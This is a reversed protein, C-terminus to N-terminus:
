KGPHLVVDIRDVPDHALLDHADAHHAREDAFGVFGLTEGVGVGDEGVGGDADASEEDEHAWDDGHDQMQGGGGHQPEADGEQGPIRELRRAAGPRGRAPQGRRALGHGRAAGGHQAAAAFYELQTKSATVGSRPVAARYKPDQWWAFFHFKWDLKTLEAKSNHLEM